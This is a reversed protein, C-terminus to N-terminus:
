TRAPLAVVLHDHVERVGRIAASASRLSSRTQHTDIIGTLTVVGDQISLDVYQTGGLSRRHIAEEISLRIDAEAVNSQRVAIENTIAVISRVNGIADEADERESFCSVQGRLLVHGAVVTIEISGPRVRADWHLAHRVAEAVESDTAGGGPPLRVQLDNAVWRVGSVRRAAADAAGRRAWSDVVGSLGITGLTATVRIEASQVRTDAIFEQLIEEELQSDPKYNM